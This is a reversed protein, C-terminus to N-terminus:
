MDGSAVFDVLTVFYTASKVRDDGKAALYALTSALLTGGLCYGVCNLAREGTANEVAAMAAIAGELMYHEFSKDRLRPIAGVFGESIKSHRARLAKGGIGEILRAVM